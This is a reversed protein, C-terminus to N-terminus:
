DMKLKNKLITNFITRDENKKLMYSDLKGLVM